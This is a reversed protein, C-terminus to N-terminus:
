TKCTCWTTFKIKRTNLTTRSEMSKSFCNCCLIAITIKILQIFLSSVCQFCVFVFEFLYTGNRNREWTNWHNSIRKHKTGRTYIYHSWLNLPTYYKTILRQLVSEKKTIVYNICMIQHCSITYCNNNICLRNFVNCM